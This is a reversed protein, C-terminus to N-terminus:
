TEMIRWSLNDKIKTKKLMENMQKRNVKDFAAKLDAFFAVIKGGKSLEKNVVYNITYVANMTGRRERFGFQTERLKDETEKKLKKNLVSAYIKYATDM